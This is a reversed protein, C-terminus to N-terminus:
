KAFNEIFSKAKYNSFTEGFSLVKKDEGYFNLDTEKNNKNWNSSSSSFNNIDSSFERRSKPIYLDDLPDNFNKKSASNFLDIKLNKIAKSEKNSNEALKKIKEKVLNKEISFDKELTKHVSNKMRELRESNQSKKSQFFNELKSSKKPKNPNSNKSLLKFIDSKM